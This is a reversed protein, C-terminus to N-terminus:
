RMSTGKEEEKRYSTCEILFASNVGNVGVCRM